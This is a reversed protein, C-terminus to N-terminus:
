PYRWRGELPIRRGDETFKYVVYSPLVGSGGRRYNELEQTTQRDSVLQFTEDSTLGFDKRIIENYDIETKPGGIQIDFQPYGAKDPPLRMLSNGRDGIQTVAWVRQLQTKTLEIAQAEDGTVRFNYIFGAKFEEQMEVATSPVEIGPEFSFWTDWVDTIDAALTAAESEPNTLIKRATEDMRPNISIEQANRGGRVYNNLEEDTASGKMFRYQDAKKALDETVRADFASPAKDQLDLFRDYAWRMAETNNSRSMTTLLGVLDTPIDQVAQVQPLISTNFYGSDMAAIHEAGKNAKFAGNFKDNDTTSYGLGGNAVVGAMFQSDDVGKQRDAMITDAKRADDIDFLGSNIAAQKEAEGAEGSYMQLFLSNRAENAAAQAQAVSEAIEQDVKRNADAQIALRDELPIDAYKPDANITEIAAQSAIGATGRIIDAEQRRRDKNSSLGQVASALKERDGTQAATAVSPPLHGYNYIVSVLAAQTPGGLKNWVDAGMKKVGEAAAVNIRRTLDRDADEKTIRDGRQVERVTGDAMTITDSSYGIRWHDVDWHTELWVKDPSNEFKYLLQRSAQHFNGTVQPAERTVGEIDRGYEVALLGGGIERRLREKEIEPLDSTTIVEDMHRHWKEAEGPTAYIGNKAREYEKNIGEVYFADQQTYQFQFADGMVGQKIQRARFTFEPQLRPPLSAIYAQERQTYLTNAQSPFDKIDPPANRKLETLAQATGSQFESLGILAGFRETKNNRKEYALGAETISEGLGGLARGIGAGFAEPTAGADSLYSLGQKSPRTNGFGKLIPARM